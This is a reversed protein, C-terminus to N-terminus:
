NTLRHCHPCAPVSGGVLQAPPDGQIRGSTPRHFPFCIFAFVKSVDTAAFFFFVRVADCIKRPHNERYPTKPRSVHVTYLVTYLISKEHVRLRM